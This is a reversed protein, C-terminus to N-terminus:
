GTHSIQVIDEIMLFLNGVTCHSNSLMQYNKLLKQMLHSSLQTTFLVKEYFFKKQYILMRGLDLSQFIPM